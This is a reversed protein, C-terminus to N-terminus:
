YLYKENGIKVIICFFNFFLFFNMTYLTAKLLLEKRTVRYIWSIACIEM